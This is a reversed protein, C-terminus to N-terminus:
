PCEKYHGKGNNMTPVLPLIIIVTLHKVLKLISDCVFKSSGALVSHKGWEAPSSSLDSLMAMCFILSLSSGADLGKYNPATKM